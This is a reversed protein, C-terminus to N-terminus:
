APKDLFARNLFFFSSSSVLELERNSVALFGVVDFSLTSPTPHSLSFSKNSKSRVEGSSVSLVQRTVFLTIRPVVLLSYSGRPSSLETM